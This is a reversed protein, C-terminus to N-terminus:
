TQHNTPSKKKGNRPNEKKPLLENFLKNRNCLEKYLAPTEVSLKTRTIDTRAHHEEYYIKLGEDSLGSFLHKCPNRVKNKIEKAHEYNRTNPLVLAGTTEVFDFALTHQVQTLGHRLEDQWESISLDKDDNKNNRFDTFYIDELINGEDEALDALRIEKKHNHNRGNLHRYDDAVVHRFAGMLIQSRRTTIQDETLEELAEDYREFDVHNGQVIRMYFDSVLGEPDSMNSGGAYRCLKGYLKRGNSLDDTIFKVINEM